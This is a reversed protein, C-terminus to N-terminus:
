SLVEFSNSHSGDIPTRPKNLNVLSCSDFNQLNSVQNVQRKPRYPCHIEIHGLGCYLCLRNARCRQKETESLPGRRRAVDIEMPSPGDFSFPNSVRIPASPPSTVISAYTQESRFRTM